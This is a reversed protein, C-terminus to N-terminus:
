GVVIDGAAEALEDLMSQAATGALPHCIAKYFANGGKLNSFTEIRLAMGSLFRM